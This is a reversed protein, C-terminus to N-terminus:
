EYNDERKIVDSFIRNIIKKISTIDEKNSMVRLFETIYFIEKKREKVEIRLAKNEQNVSDRKLEKFLLHDLFPSIKELFHKLDQSKKKYFLIRSDNILVLGIPKKLYNMRIGLDYREGDFNINETHYNLAEVKRRLETDSKKITILTCHSLAFIKTVEDQFIGKFFELSDVVRLKSLISTFNYETSFEKFKMCFYLVELIMIGFILVISFSNHVMFRSILSIVFCIIINKGTLNIFQRFNREGEMVFYDKQFVIGLIFSLTIAMIYFSNYFFLGQWIVISTLIFNLTYVFLHFDKDELSKTSFSRAAQILTVINGLVLIGIFYYKIFLVIVEKSKASLTPDFVLVIHLASIVVGLLLGLPLIVKKLNETKDVKKQYMFLFFYGVGMTFLINSLSSFFIKLSIFPMTIYLLESLMSIGFIWFSRRWYGVRNLIKDRSFLLFSFSFVVFSITTLIFIYRQYFIQINAENLVIEPSINNNFINIFKNLSAELKM